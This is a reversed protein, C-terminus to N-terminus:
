SDWIGGKVWPPMVRAIPSATDSAVPADPPSGERDGADGGAAVGDHMTAADAADATAEETDTPAAAEEADDEDWLGAPNVRPLARLAPPAGTPREGGADDATDRIPIPIPGEVDGAGSDPPLAAVPAPLDAVDLWVACGARTVGRLWYAVGRLLDADERPMREDPDITWGVRRAAAVHRELATALDLAAAGELRDLLRTALDPRDGDRLLVHPRSADIREPLVLAYSIADRPLPARRLIIRTETTM